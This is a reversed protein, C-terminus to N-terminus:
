AEALEVKPAAALRTKHYREGNSGYFLITNRDTEWIASIKVSRPGHVCFYIGCPKGNRLLIRQTMQFANEILQEHHCLISNVYNRLQDLNEIREVSIEM